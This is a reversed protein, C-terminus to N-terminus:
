YHPPPSEEEPLALQSPLLARVHESLQKITNSQERIREEQTLLIRTLEELAAEQHMLRNELIEIRMSPEDDIMPPPESHLDPKEIM